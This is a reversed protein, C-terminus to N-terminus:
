KRSGVESKQGGRHRRVKARNGCGEMECWRRSANRSRDFHLRGCADCCKLRHRLEGSLLQSASWAAPFIVQLLPGPETTWGWGYGRVTPVLGRSATAKRLVRNLEALDDDRAGTGRAEDTLLRTLVDRFQRARRIAAPSDLVDSLHESHIFELARPPSDPLPMYGDYYM